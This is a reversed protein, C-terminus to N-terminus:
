LVKCGITGVRPSDISYRPRYDGWNCEIRQHAKEVLSSLEKRNNATGLKVWTAKYPADGDECIVVDWVLVNVPFKTVFEHRIIQSKM